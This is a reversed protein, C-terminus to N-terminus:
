ILLDKWSCRWTWKLFSNLFESLMLLFRITIDTISNSGGTVENTYQRWQVLLTHTQETTCLQNFFCTVCVGYNETLHVQLIIHTFSQRIRPSDSVGAGEGGDLNKWKQAAKPSYQIFYYALTELTTTPVGDQPFIRSGCSNINVSVAIDSKRKTNPTKWFTIVSTHQSM